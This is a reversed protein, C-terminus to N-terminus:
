TKGCVAIPLGRRFVTVPGDESVVFAVTHHHDWTFRAASRHRMGREQTVADEAEVSSRLGVGLHTVLGHQNVLAALDTQHLSAFLAAYHHRSTVWLPPSPLAGDLDLNASDDHVPDVDVLLTAGIHAPSLWHVALDLLGALIEQTSEPVAAQVSRLISRASPRMNWNRGNWEVVGTPIFVRPVGMATRQVIATGTAEQFEILDAEYQVSRRFCALLKAGDCQRVLFASRGDAFSRCEDLPLDLEVIDVLDETLGLSVGEPLIFSGYVSTRGEHVPPRRAHDLEQILQNSHTEDGGGLVIGDDFLEDQLREHARTLLVANESDM